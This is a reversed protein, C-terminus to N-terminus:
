VVDEIVVDLVEILNVEYFSIPKKTNKDYLVRIVPKDPFNRNQKIVYGEVGNSLRVCCGLPYVAFTRRFDMVVQEDFMRGSGGLIFEYSDGPSFKRRYSRDSSVADYVDCVCIIKAYKSIQNKELNHPYGTGDVREHHQSVASLVSNPISMFKKLIDIGYEPHKKMESYEEDSLPGKKNIIKPSIKTKGIDHLIAGVGLEKLEKEKLGSSIGLFTSMICTDLSHAYTYNDHTRIEFLNKSVDGVDVVYQVLDEVVGLSEKLSKKNCGHISKVIGSVSKMAYQKLESLRTDEGDIDELRHDEVYLYFVGLEKLKRIYSSNLKVGAKLLVKGDTSLISKALVEEGMLKNIYELRM